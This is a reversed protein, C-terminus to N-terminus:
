KGASLTNILLDRAQNIKAALYDNGGRDPHLKQILRRHADLVIDQTVEGNKLDGSIGLIELAEQINMVSSSPASPAKEQAQAQEKKHKFWYPLAQMLLGAGVRLFPLLAGIAAGIWHMRGTIVLVVLLGLFMGTGLRWLATRKQASDMKKYRSSIIVISTVILAFILINLM